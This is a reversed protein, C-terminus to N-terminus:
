NDSTNQAENAARGLARRKECMFKLVYVIAKYHNEKYFTEALFIRM